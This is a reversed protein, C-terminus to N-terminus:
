RLVSIQINRKDGKKNQWYELTQKSICKPFVNLVTLSHELYKIKDKLLHNNSCVIHAQNVLIKLTSKEMNLSWFFQPLGGRQTKEIDFQKVCKAYM